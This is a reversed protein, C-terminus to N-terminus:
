KSRRPSASIYRTREAKAAREAYNEAKEEAGHAEAKAIHLASRILALHTFGQPYNGLLEGSAPDIEEALLGLDNAYGAVREFLERAEDTRGQLALNDVLWFSCMAFTGETGPLGDETLYRHVLGQSTLRQQIREVTSQVRPDTAPLFGTLPIVLASADLSQEGFAQTFAGIDKNYGEALIARRIEDSTRKWLATDPTTNLREALRIARDLAVWCMLKSYLFHRPGGRVEWIGQDPERWRRVTEDAMFSLEDWWEARVPQGILEHYLHAADLVEGYIDLQKQDFAANGVRVPRSKRYGELHDLTHEPLHPKGHITYMIQLKSHCTICLRDLWNFFDTAEESYGLLQLAYIILASDRLWTYRYDWNRVGGIQEPLSTTPAAIIAGTPEFTLLKLTLASRRVLDRYPGNYRCDSWWQEWYKLTQELEREGDPPSLKIDEAATDEYYHLSVWVREGESLRFHGILAGAYDRKFQIQCALALAERGSSAIAGGECMVIATEARAYDFTPRFSIEVEVSGSLGEVLRLIDHRSAIDEGRHSETLREVPMFDTLRFQGDDTSFTTALVSTPGAYSRTVQYDQAPQIQFWGGKRQDLLRCFIAPSDFHPWCCWDISGDSAVLAATHADGILAYDRIPRYGREDTSTM